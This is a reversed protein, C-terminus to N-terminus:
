DSVSKLPSSKKNHTVWSVPYLKIEKDWQVGREDAQSTFCNLCHIDNIRSRHVALEWIDNPVSFHVRSVQYCLGCIERHSKREEEM